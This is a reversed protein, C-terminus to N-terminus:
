SIRGDITFTLDDYPYDNRILEIFRIFFFGAGSRSKKM